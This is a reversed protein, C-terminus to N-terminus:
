LENFMILFCTCVRTTKSRNVGCKETHVAFMVLQLGQPASHFNRASLCGRTRTAESRRSSPRQLQWFAQLQLFHWQDFQYSSIFYLECILLVVKFLFPSIFLFVYPDRQAQGDIMKGGPGMLNLWWFISTDHIQHPLLDQFIYIYTYIYINYHIIIHIHIYLSTWAEPVAYVQIRNPPPTPHSTLTWTFKRCCNISRVRPTPPHPPINVNM